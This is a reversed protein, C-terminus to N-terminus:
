EFALHVINIVFVFLIAIVAILSTFIELELYGKPMQNKKSLDEILEKIFAYTLIIHNSPFSLLLALAALCAPTLASSLSGWSEHQSWDSMTENHVEKDEIYKPKLTVSSWRAGSKLSLLSAAWIVQFFIEIQSM